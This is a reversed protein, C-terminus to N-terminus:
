ASNATARQVPCGPRNCGNVNIDYALRHCFACPLYYGAEAEQRGTPKHGTGSYRTRYEELVEGPVLHWANRRADVDHEAALCINSRLRIAGRPVKKETGSFDPRPPESKDDESKLGLGLGFELDHVETTHEDGILTSRATVTAVLDHDINAHLELREM